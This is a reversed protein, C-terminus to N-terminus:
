TSASDTLLPMRSVWILPPLTGCALGLMVAPFPMSACCVLATFGGLVGALSVATKRDMQPGGFYRILGIPLVVTVLAVHVAIFFGYAAFLIAVPGYSLLGSLGAFAAGGFATGFWTRWFFGNTDITSNSPSVPSDLCVPPEYPNAIQETM